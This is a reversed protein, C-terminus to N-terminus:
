LMEGLHTQQRWFSQVPDLNISSVKGDSVVETTVAVVHSRMPLILALTAAWVLSSYEVGRKRRGVKGKDEDNAGTLWTHKQEVKNDPRYNHSQDGSM